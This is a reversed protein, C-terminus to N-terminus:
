RSLELPCGDAPLDCDKIQPHHASPDCPELETAPVYTHTLQQRMVEKDWVRVEDCGRERGFHMLALTLFRSGTTSLVYYYEIWSFWTTAHAWTLCDIATAFFIARPRTAIMLSNTLRTSAIGFVPTKSEFLVAAPTAAQDFSARILEVAGATPLLDMDAYVGGHAHLMFYRAADVRQIHYPYADYTPLFEPREAAVLSRLDDDSWCRHTAEPLATRWAAPSGRWAEPLESENCTRYTQHLVWRASASAVRRSDSPVWRSATTTENCVFESQLAMMRLQLAAFAAFVPGLVAAAWLSLRAISAADPARRLTPPSASRRARAPSRAPASSRSRASAAQRLARAEPHSSAAHAVAPAESRPPTADPRIVEFLLWHMPAVYLAVLVDVTYHRRAAVLVFAQALTLLALPAVAAARAVPSKIVWCVAYRYILIALHTAFMTHGSFVLDGCSSRSDIVQTWPLRLEIAASLSRPPPSTYAQQCHDASGPLLTSLFFSARLLYCTGTTMGFRTVANVIYWPEDDSHVSLKFLVAMCMIVILTVTPADVMVDSLYLTEPLLTHVMDALRMNAGEPYESGHWFFAIRGLQPVVAINLVLAVILALWQQRILQLETRLHAVFSSRTHLRPSAM